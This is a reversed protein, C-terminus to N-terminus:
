EATTSILQEAQTSTHQQKKVTYQFFIFNPRIKCEWAKFQYHVAGNRFNALSSKIIQNAPQLILRKMIKKKLSRLQQCQKFNIISTIQTIFDIKHHFAICKVMLAQRQQIALPPLPHSVWCINHM